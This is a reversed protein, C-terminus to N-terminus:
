NHCQNQAQWLRMWDGPADSDCCVSLHIPFEVAHLIPFVVPLRPTHRVGPAATLRRTQAPVPLKPSAPEYRRISSVSTCILLSARTIMTRRKIKRCYSTKPQEFAKVQSCGFNALERRGSQLHTMGNPSMPALPLQRSM